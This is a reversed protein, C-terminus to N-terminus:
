VDAGDGTGGVAPRFAGAFGGRFAAAAIGAALAAATRGNRGRVVVIIVIRGAGRSGATGGSGKGAAPRVIGAGRRAVATAVTAVLIVCRLGALLRGVGFAAFTGPVNGGHGGVRDTEGAAAYVKFLVIKGRDAERELPADSSGVVVERLVAAAEKSAAPIHLFQGHQELLAAVDHHHGAAHAVFPEGGGADGTNIHSGKASEGSEHM